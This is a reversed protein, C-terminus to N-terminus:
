VKKTQNIAGKLHLVYKKLSFIKTRILQPTETQFCNFQWDDFLWIM